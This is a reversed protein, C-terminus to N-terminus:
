SNKALALQKIRNSRLVGCALEPRKKVLEKIKNQSRKKQANSFFKNIRKDILSLDDPLNSALLEVFKKNLSDELPAGALVYHRGENEHCLVISLRNHDPLNSVNKRNVKFSALPYTTRAQLYKKVLSVKKQFVNAQQNTVGNGRIAEIGGQEEIFDIFQNPNVQNAKATDIARSYIHVKKRDARTIYRVILATTSTNTGTNIGYKDHLESRIMALLEDKDVAQEFSNVLELMKALLEYLVRRGGVIYKENFSEHESALDNAKGILTQTVVLKSGVEIDFQKM